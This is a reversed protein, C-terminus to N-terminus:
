EEDKRYELKLVAHILVLSNTEVYRILTSSRLHILLSSAHLSTLRLSCQWRGQSRVTRYGFM